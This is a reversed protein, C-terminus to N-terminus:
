VGCSSTRVWSALLLLLLADAKASGDEESMGVVRPDDDDDNLCGSGWNVRSVGSGVTEDKLRKGCCSFCGSNIAM